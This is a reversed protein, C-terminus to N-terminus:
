REAGKHQCILRVLFDKGSRLVDGELRCERKHWTQRVVTKADHILKSPWSARAIASLLSSFFFGHDELEQVRVMREVGCSARVLQSGLLMSSYPEEIAM